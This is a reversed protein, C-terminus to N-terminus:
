TTKIQIERIMREESLLINENKKTKMIEPLLIMFYHYPPFLRKWTGRESATLSKRLSPKKGHGGTNTENGRTEKYHNTMIVIVLM